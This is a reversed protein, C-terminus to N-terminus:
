AAPGPPSVAMRRKRSAMTLASSRGLTEEMMAADGAGSSPLPLSSPSHGHRRRDLRMAAAARVVARGVDEDNVIIATDAVQERAVELIMAKADRGGHIGRGRARGHAPEGEVQEDEVHHHRLFGADVERARQAGGRLHRDKHEGRAGLGILTDLPELGADVIIEGLGEVRALKQEADAVHEAAAIRRRRGALHAHAIEHEVDRAPLQLAIALGDAEGLALALQEAIERLPGAHRDRAM